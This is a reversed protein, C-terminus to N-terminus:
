FLIALPIKSIELSLTGFSVVHPKFGMNISLLVKNLFLIPIMIVGFLLIEQDADTQEGVFFATLLFIIIGISSFMGSSLIATKGSKEGRAVERTVWYSTIPQILTVYLILGYLLTWTGFEQPNLSRTVILMFGLGTFITVIGVIFFFLGSYTVRINSM